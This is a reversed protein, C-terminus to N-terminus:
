DPRTTSRFRSAVKDITLSENDTSLLRGLADVIVVYFLWAFSVLWTLVVGIELWASLSDTPLLAFIEPPFVASSPTL